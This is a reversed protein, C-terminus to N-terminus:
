RERERNRTRMREREREKVTEKEGKERKKRGKERERQGEGGQGRKREFVKEGKGEKMFVKQKGQITESEDVQIKIVPAVFEFRVRSIVTM